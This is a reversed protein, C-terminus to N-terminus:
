QVGVGWGGRGWSVCVSPYEDLSFLFGASM